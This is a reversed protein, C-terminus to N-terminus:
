CNRWSFAVKCGQFHQCNGDPGFALGPRKSIVNKSIEECRRDLKLLSHPAIAHGLGALRFRGERRKEAQDSKLEVHDLCGVNLM